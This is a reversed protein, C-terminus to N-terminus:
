DNGYEPFAVPDEDSFTGFSKNLGALEILDYDDLILYCEDCFFRDPLFSVEIAPFEPDDLNLSKSEAEDSGVIGYRECAPCQAETEYYSRSVWRRNAEWRANEGVSAMGSQRRQYRSQASALLAEYHVELNRKNAALLSEIKNAMASGVFDDFTRQGSLLLVNFLSWIRPWWIQNPLLLIDVGAGHLYDNRAEAIKLAEERNFPRLASGCRTFITSAQATVAKNSEKLELAQLLQSGGDRQPDVVLAPSIEALAWKAAQELSLAAWFRREDESRGEGPETARNIFLIAKNWFGEAAFPNM